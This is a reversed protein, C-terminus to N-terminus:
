AAVTASATESWPGMAGRRTVWRVLYHAQMGGKASEYSLTTSGNNVSQAYSFAGFDM